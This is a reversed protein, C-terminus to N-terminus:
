FTLPVISVNFANCRLSQPFFYHGILVREKLYQILFIADFYNLEGTLMSVYIFRVYFTYMYHQIIGSHGVM